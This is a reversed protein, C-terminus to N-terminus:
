ERRERPSPYPLLNGFSYCFLAMFIPGETNAVFYYSRSWSKWDFWLFTDVNQRFLHISSAPKNVSNSLFPANGKRLKCCQLNQVSTILGDNIWSIPDHALPVPITTEFEGKSIIIIKSYYIPPWLQCTKHFYM